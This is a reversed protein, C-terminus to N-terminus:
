GMSADANKVGYQSCLDVLQRVDSYYQLSGGSEGDIKDYLRKFSASAGDYLRGNVSDFSVDKWSQCAEKTTDHDGGCATLSALMTVILAAVVQLKVKTV